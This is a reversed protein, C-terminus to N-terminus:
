RLMEAAQSDSKQRAEGHVAPSNPRSEAQSAVLPPLQPCWCWQEVCAQPCRAVGEGGAPLPPSGTRHFCLETPVGTGAAQPSPALWALPGRPAFPALPALLSSLWRLSGLLIIFHSEVCHLIICFLEFRRQMIKCQLANNSMIECSKEYNRM